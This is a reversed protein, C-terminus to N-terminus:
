AHRKLNDPETSRVPFRQEGHNGIRSTTNADDSKHCADEESTGVWSVSRRPRSRFRLDPARHDRGLQFFRLITFCETIVVRIQTDSAIRCVNNALMFSVADQSVTALGHQTSQVTVRNVNIQDTDQLCLSDPDSALAFRDYLRSSARHRTACAIDCFSIDKLCPQM